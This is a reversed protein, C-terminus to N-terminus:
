RKLIKELKKMNDDSYGTITLLVKNQDDLVVTHPITEFKYLQQVKKGSMVIKSPSSSLTGLFAVIQERPLKVAHVSVFEVDAYKREIKALQPMEMKSTISKASWFNLVKVKAQSKNLRYIKGELTRGMINPAIDGVKLGEAAFSSTKPVFAYSIEKSEGKAVKITTKYTKFNPNKLEITHKGVTVENIMQPSPGIKKGDLYINGWPMVSVSLSGTPLKNLTINLKATKDTRVNIQRTVADYGEANIKIKYRGVPLKKNNVPTTGMERGDLYWKAPPTSVLKLSGSNVALRPNLSAVKDTAIKVKRTWPKKGALRVNVKYNGPPLTKEVPAKGIEKGNIMVTAGAPGAVKLKGIAPIAAAEISFEENEAIRVVKKWDKYGERKVLLKHKGTKIKKQKVSGHGVLKGDIYVEAESGAGISLSGMVPAKPVAKVEAPKPPPPVEKPVPATAPATEEPVPAPAPPPPAEKPSPAPAPTQVAPPAQQVARSVEMKDKQGMMFWAAGGGVAILAIVAAGILMGSKKKPGVAFQSRDMIMTKTGSVDIGGSSEDALGKVARALADVFATCTPYREQPNKALVRMVVKDIAPHLRTDMVTPPVPSERVIKYIVSSVNSGTFPRTGTLLEYFMVGLSFQDSRGDVEHDQVQEPSMYSPSGVARGTSTIHSASSQLKALGFDAIKCDNDVTLMINAPKIDRHWIGKSHAFDLGSAIQRTFNILTDIDPRKGAPQFKTLSGGEMYEMVIYTMDEAKGLEFLTVINPHNLQATAKAELDFRKMMEAEQEPDGFAENKITKIAVIRDVAPDRAKVVVGMGGKGLQGLIEFRGIKESEGGM